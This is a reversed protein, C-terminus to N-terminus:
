RFLTIPDATTNAALVRKVLLEVTDGKEVNMVVTRGDYTVVEIDGATGVRFRRAVGNQFKVNHDLDTSTITYADSPTDGYYVNASM